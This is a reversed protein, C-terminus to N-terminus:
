RTTMGREDTAKVVTGEITEGPWPTAPPVPRRRWSRPVVARALLAFAAAGAAVILVTAAVAATLVVAALALGGVAILVFVGGTRRYNILMDMARPLVLRRAEEIM